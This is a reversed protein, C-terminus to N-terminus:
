GIQLDCNYPWSVLYRSQLILNFLKIYVPILSELSAKIMENRIKDVFPSKENKLKKVAQGMEQETITHELYNLQEKEKELSKLEIYIEQRQTSTRPDNTHLSQFHTLWTEESLPAPVNEVITDNM